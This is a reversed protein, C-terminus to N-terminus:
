NRPIVYTDIYLIDINADLIWGMVWVYGLTWLVPSIIMNVHRHIYTPASLWRNPFSQGISSIFLCWCFPLLVAESKPFDEYKKQRGKGGVSSACAWSAYTYSFKECIGPLSCLIKQQGFGMSFFSLWQLQLRALVSWRKSGWVSASHHVPGFM